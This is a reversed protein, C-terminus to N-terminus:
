VLYQLSCTRIGSSPGLEDFNGFIPSSNTPPDGANNLKYVNIQGGTTIFYQVIVDSGANLGVGVLNQNVSPRISEPLLSSFIIHSVTTVDDFAQPM